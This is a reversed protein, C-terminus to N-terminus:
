DEQKMDEYVLHVETGPRITVRKTRTVAKGEKRAVVKFDYSYERGPELAPTVFVSSPSRLPIEQDNAYLTAGAPVRVHVLARPPALPMVPIAPHKMSAREEKLEKVARHIADLKQEILRQRLESITQKLADVQQQQQGKQLEEIARKLDALDQSVGQSLALDGTGLAAVLVISYMHGVEESRLFLGFEGPPPMM